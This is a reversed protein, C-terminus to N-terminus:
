GPKATGSRPISIVCQLGEREWDFTAAGGLQGEVIANIVRTGFGKSSPTEVAPGGSEAWRLVLSDPQVDWAIRVRGLPASLAGYKAANTALEHLALAVTQAITPELMVNEGRTEIMNRDNPDGRYPRLEDDVLTELEAGQWRSRSLLIHAQALAQIRGDIAAIYSETDEAKTLRVISQVVSLVNMARHDVERALLDQRKEFEKRDTIDETVGSMRIIRGNEMFAAATGACFRQSGDGRRVRFEAQFTATDGSKEEWARALRDWDEPHVLARVSERTAEFSEADIGFIRCQGADFHGQDKVIDWEWAGMKGAALALGRLQESQILRSNSIALELTRKAVRDELERNLQELQRAKRHLEVFIKVKARLMEPIVPVQVYDVAGLEYGRVRDAEALYIGSIFIIATDKCRPHERIMAALEFGDLEPMCVDLLVVAIDHKLLHEFAVTASDASILNEGLDRLMVDYTLLKGPQDDVLLINVREHTVHVDHSM